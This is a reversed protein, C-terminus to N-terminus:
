LRIIKQMFYGNDSDSWFHIKVIYIGPPLIFEPAFLGITGHEATKANIILHVKGYFDYIELDFTIRKNGDIAMELASNQPWPNPSIRIITTSSERKKVPLNIESLKAAKECAGVDITGGLVRNLGYFDTSWIYSHPLYMGSNFEPV